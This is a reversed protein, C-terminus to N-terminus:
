GRWFSLVTPDAFPDKVNFFDKSSPNLLPKSIDFLIVFLFAEYFTLPVFRSPDNGSNVVLKPWVQNYTWQVIFTKLLLIVTAMALMYWQKDKGFESKNYLDRYVVYGNKVFFKLDDNKLTEKFNFVKNYNFNM